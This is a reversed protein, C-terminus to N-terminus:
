QVKEWEYMSVDAWQNIHKTSNRRNRNSNNNRNHNSNHNDTVKMSNTSGHNSGNGNSGNTTANASAVQRAQSVLVTPNAARRWKRCADTDCCPMISSTWADITGLRPRKQIIFAHFLTSLSLSM